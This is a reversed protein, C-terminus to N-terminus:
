LGELFTENLKEIGSKARKRAVNGTVDETRQIAGQVIKEAATDPMRRHEMNREMEQLIEERLNGGVLKRRNKLFRVLIPQILPEQSAQEDPGAM